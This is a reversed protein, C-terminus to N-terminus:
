CVEVGGPDGGERASGHLWGDGGAILLLLERLESSGQRRHSGCSGEGEEGAEEEKGIKRERREVDQDQKEVPACRRRPARGLGERALDPSGRRIWRRCWTARRGWAGQRRFGGALDWAAGHAGRGSRGVLELAMDWERQGLEVRGGALNTELLAPNARRSWGRRGVPTGRRAATWCRWRGTRGQLLRPTWSSANVRLTADAQRGDVVQPGASRRWAWCSGLGAKAEGGVPSFGM